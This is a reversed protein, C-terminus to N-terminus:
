ILEVKLVKSQICGDSHSGKGETDDKDLIEVMRM